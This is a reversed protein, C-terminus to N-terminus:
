GRSSLWSAAMGILTILSYKVFLGHVPKTALERDEDTVAVATADEAM